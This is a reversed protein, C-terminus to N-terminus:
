RQWRNSTSDQDRDHDHDRDRNATRQRDNRHDDRHVDTRRDNDPVRVPVYRTETVVRTPQQYVVVPDREYYAPRGYYGYSPSSYGSDMSEVCGATSAALGAAVLWVLKRM